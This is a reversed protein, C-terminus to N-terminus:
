FLVAGRRGDISTEAGLLCLFNRRSESLYDSVIVPPPRELAGDLVYDDLYELLVAKSLSDKELRFSM